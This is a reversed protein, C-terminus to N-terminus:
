HINKLFTLRHIPCTGLERIGEYHAKTGYGKNKEFGYGPYEEAYERMMRDRTVKALISAAAIALVKGDGKVIGKLPREEDELEVADILIYDCRQGRRELLMRDCAALAERMAKKTAQLINIRDIESHDVIGIGWAVAEERIVDFLEERRKESLKKSDDVGLCSFDEPMVAAAAVVPGALPGRGAEDIGAIYTFGAEHLLREEEKMEALKTKKLEERKYM